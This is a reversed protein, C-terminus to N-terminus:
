GASRVCRAALPAQEDVETIAWPADAKPSLGAEEAQQEIASESAWFPGPGRFVEAATQVEALTPLRWGVLKQGSWPVSLAACFAEAESRTVGEAVGGFFQLGAGTAVLPVAAAAEPVQLAVEDQALDSACRFGLLGDREPSERRFGARGGKAVGVGSRGAYAKSFAGDGRFPKTLFPQLGVDLAFDDDVWELANSGMGRFGFYSTDVIGNVPTLVGRYEDRVEIGWPYRRGDPGRAAYEWETETPLRGGVSACFVRAQKRTVCTQPVLSLQVESYRAALDDEGDECVAPTCTGAKVCKAYASRTVEHLDLWFGEATVVRPPQGSWQSQMSERIEAADYRSPIDGMVFAGKPLQVQQGRETQRTRLAECTGDPKKGTGRVCKAVKEPDIAPEPADTPNPPDSVEVRKPLAQPVDAIPHVPESSDCASGLLVALAFHRRM